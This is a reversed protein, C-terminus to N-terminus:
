RIRRTRRTPAYMAQADIEHRVPPPDVARPRTSAKPPMARLADIWSARDRVIPAPRYMDAAHARPPPGFPLRSDPPM